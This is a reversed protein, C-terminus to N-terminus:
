HAASLFDILDDLTSFRKILPHWVFYSKLLVNDDSCVIFCRKGKGVAYAMTALSGWHKYPPDLRTALTIVCDAKDVQSCNRLVDADKEKVCPEVGIAEDHWTATNEIGVEALARLKERYEEKADM